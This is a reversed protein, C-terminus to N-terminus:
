GHLVVKGEKLSKQVDIVRQNSSGVWPLDPSKLKEVFRGDCLVDIYSLCKTKEDNHKLVQEYTWGTYLWITKLPYDSKLKQCLELIDKKNFESFGDGGTITVGSIYDHELETCLEIYDKETWTHSEPLGIYNPDQLEKNFCGACSHDCGSFFLVERLGEGNLMDAHYKYILRM